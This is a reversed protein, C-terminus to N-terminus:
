IQTEKRSHNRLTVQCNSPLLWSTERSMTNYFFIANDSRKAATWVEFNTENEYLYRRTKEDFRVVWGPPAPFKFNLPYHEFNLKEVASRAVKFPIKQHNKLLEEDTEHIKWSTRSTEVASQLKKLSEEETEHIRRSSRSPEDDTGEQLILRRTEHNETNKQLILKPTKETEQLRSTSDQASSPIRTETTILDPLQSNTRDSNSTFNQFVEETGLLKRSTRSTEDEASEALGTFNLKQLKSLSEEETGHIRRSTRSTEDEHFKEKIQLKSVSKGPFIHEAPVRSTFEKKLKEQEEINIDEANFGYTFVGQYNIPSFDIFSRPRQDKSRNLNDIKVAIAHYWAEGEIEEKCKFLIMEKITVLCYRTKKKKKNERRVSAVKLAIKGAVDDRKEERRYLFHTSTLFVVCKQWKKKSNTTDKSIKAIRLSGKRLIGGVNDDASAPLSWSSVTKEPKENKTKKLKRPPKWTIEQTDANKYFKRGNPSLFESWSDDLARVLQGGAEEEKGGNEQRGEMAM